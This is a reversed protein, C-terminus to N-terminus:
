AAKENRRFTLELPGVAVVDGDRLQVPQVVRRGNVFTGNASGLDVM